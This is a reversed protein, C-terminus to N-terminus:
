CRITDDPLRGTHPVSRLDDNGERGHVLTRAKWETGIDVHEM